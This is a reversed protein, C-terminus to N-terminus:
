IHRLFVYDNCEGFGSRFSQSADSKGNISSGQVMSDCSLRRAEPDMDRLVEREVRDEAELAERSM